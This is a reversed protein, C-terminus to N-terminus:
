QKEEELKATIKKIIGNVEMDSDMPIVLCKRGDIMRIEVLSSAEPKVSIKVNEGKVELRGKEKIRDAHLIGKEGLEKEFKEEVIPLHEEKVGSNKLLEKVGKSDLTPEDCFVKNELMENLNDQVNRVVEFTDYEPAENIFEEIVNHFIKNEAVSTMEEVCGLIDSIIEPHILLPDKCYYLLSNVDSSRDNFAPFLFGVDPMEVVWDRIRAAFVNEDEHYSLAAKALNVPCICSYIYRFVEESERQSFGDSGERMVDYADYITIILYNGVTTYANMIKEYLSDLIGPEALESDRLSLLFKQADDGEMSREFSLNLLNRNLVGSLGKKLLEIYKHRDSEDLNTLYTNMRSQIRKESGIVYCTEIKFSADDCFKLRKKLELIESNNM